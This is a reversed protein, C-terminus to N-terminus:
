LEAHTKRTATRTKAKPKTTEGTSRIIGDADREARRAVFQSDVTPRLDQIAQGLSMKRDVMRTKLQAFPVGLNNSVNVAAVFQGLNRFGSSATVVNTGAPLRGQLKDALHTNRQLQQQVPSPTGSTGATTGTSKKTSTSTTKTTGAGSGAPQGHAAPATKPGQAAHGSNPKPAAHGHQGALAPAAVVVLVITCALISRHM